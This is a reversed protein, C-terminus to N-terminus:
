RLEGDIVNLKKFQSELWEGFDKEEKSSKTRCKAIKAKCLSGNRKKTLPLRCKQNNKNDAVETYTGNDTIVQQLQTQSRDM